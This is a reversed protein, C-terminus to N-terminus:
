WVSMMIINIKKDKALGNDLDTKIKTFWVHSLLVNMPKKMM